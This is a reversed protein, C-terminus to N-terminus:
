TSKIDVDVDVAYCITELHKHQMHDTFYYQFCVLKYTPKIIYGCGGRFKHGHLNKEEMCKWGTEVDVLLLASLLISTIM